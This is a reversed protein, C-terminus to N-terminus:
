VGEWQQDEVTIESTGCCGESRNGRVCGCWPPAMGVTVLLVTQVSVGPQKGLDPTSAAHSNMSGLFAGKGAFQLLPQSIFIDLWSMYQIMDLIM